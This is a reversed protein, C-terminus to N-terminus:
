FLHFSRFAAQRQVWFQANCAFRWALKVSVLLGRLVYLLTKQLHRAVHRAQMMCVTCALMPCKITIFRYGAVIVSNCWMLTFTASFAPIQSEKLSRMLLANCMCMCRMFWADKTLPLRHQTHKRLVSNRCCSHCVLNSGCPSCADHLREFRRHVESAAVASERERFTQTSIRM